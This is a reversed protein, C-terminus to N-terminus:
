VSLNFGTSEGFGVMRLATRSSGRSGIILDPDTSKVFYTELERQDVTSGGTAQALSHISLNHRNRREAGGTRADILIQERGLAGRRGPMGSCMGPLSHVGSGRDGAARVAGLDSM